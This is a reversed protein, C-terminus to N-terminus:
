FIYTSTKRLSELTLFDQFIEVLRMNNIKTKMELIFAGLEFHSTITPITKLM